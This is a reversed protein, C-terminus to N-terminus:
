MEAGNHFDKECYKCRSELAPFSKFPGERGNAVMGKPRFAIESLPLVIRKSRPTSGRVKV